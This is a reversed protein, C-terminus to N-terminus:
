LGAKAVEPHQQRHEGSFMHGMLMDPPVHGGACQSRACIVAEQLVRYMWRGARPEDVLCAM